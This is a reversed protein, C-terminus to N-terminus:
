SGARQSEELQIDFLLRGGDAFEAGPCELENLGGPVAALQPIRDDTRKMRGSDIQRSLDQRLHRGFLAPSEILMAGLATEMQSDRDRALHLLDEEASL